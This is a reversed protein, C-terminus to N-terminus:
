CTRPFVTFDTAFLFRLSATGFDMLDDTLAMLDLTDACATFALIKVDDLRSFALSTLLIDSLDSRSTLACCGLRAATALPVFCTKARFVLRRTTLPRWILDMPVLPCDELRCLLTLLLAAAMVSFTTLVTLPELRAVPM